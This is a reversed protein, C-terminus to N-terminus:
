QAQPQQQPPAPTQGQPQGQEQRRAHRDVLMQEFQQKQSDTLVAEIRTRSDRMVGQVKVRRDRPALSSDVRLSEIQQQRDALIPRIQAVQARSLGLQRALERAQHEPNAPRHQAETAASNSPAAQGAIGVQQGGNDTQAPNSSQAMAMASALALGCFISLTRSQMAKNGGAAPM